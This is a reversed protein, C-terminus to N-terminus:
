EVKKFDIFEQAVDIHNMQEKRIMSYDGGIFNNYIEITMGDTLPFLINTSSLMLDFGSVMKM